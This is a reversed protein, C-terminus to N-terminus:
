QTIIWNTLYGGYSGGWIGLRNPDIYPYKSICYDLAEINDRYEGGLMDGVIADSFANGYGSSGRYNIAIQIFGHTTPILLGPNWYYGRQGSPGGKISLLTPYKKSPDFDVPKYIWGQIDLGDSTKFWFEEPYSLRMALTNHNTLKTENEDM